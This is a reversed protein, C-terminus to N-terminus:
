VHLLAGLRQAAQTMGKMRRAIVDPCIDKQVDGSVTKWIALERELHERHWGTLVTMPDSTAAYYDRRDGPKYVRVVAGSAEMKRIAVSVTSKAAGVAECLGGLSVPDAELFVAAYLRGLLPNLGSLACMRAFSDSLEGRTQDNM